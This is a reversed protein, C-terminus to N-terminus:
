RAGAGLTRILHVLRRPRAYLTPCTAVSARVAASALSWERGAALVSSAEYQRHGAVWHREIYAGPHLLPSVRRGAGNGGQDDARAYPCEQYVRLYEAAMRELSFRESIWDRCARGRAAMDNRDALALVVLRALAEPPTDAAYLQGGHASDVCENVGRVDPGIAPCGCAQAELLTLPLGEFSSTSLICGGSAAVDRYFDPMRDRPVPAWTEALARVPGAIDPPVAAPGDPDAVRVRLGARRLHPAAQGLRDFRKQRLDSARGVWAVVPPGGSPASPPAPSFTRVDVGNPIVQVTVDTLPQQERAGWASCSVLADCNRRSWAPHSSGHHTLVLKPAHRLHRVASVGADWDSTVGHVVDYRRAAALRLLDELSGGLAEFDAPVLGAPPAVDGFFVDSDHGEERLLRALSFMWSEVGGLLGATQVPRHFHYLVRM